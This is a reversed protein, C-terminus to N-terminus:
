GREIEVVERLHFKFKGLNGGFNAASLRLIDAGAAAHAAHHMASRIAQEDVGDFVLEYACETEPHLQSEVRGRLTPCWADNTSARLAKYRSGVKSGSRVLGGPFPAIVGPVKAVAAAARRASLLAARQTRAEIILSGGGIGKAAGATAEVVFEGDMVPIRWYHREGIRKSKQFGDGFFRLHNGLVLRTEAEPLGDYVATTPCTMVCQGIRTPVAKALVDASYGFFMVAAGVRGDPTDASALSQELGAEVDCAIVSAAFGTVERVAADLAEEDLATVILRAYWMRFAEAFTEEIFTEHLLMPTALYHIRVLALSRGRSLKM